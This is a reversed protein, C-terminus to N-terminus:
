RNSILDELLYILRDGIVARSFNDELYERGRLGMELSNEPDAALARIADAIEKANGPATFIGCDAAEVVERIVGDIALVVPRGAAMYDFVKNPYTTKYEELPKLIAICADAGALALAMETKPVSPLFTVNSLNMEKAQAMLASKEKGDGLLVIHINKVDTLLSASELIIQLDNSMGHAGAYLAVFKDKLTNSQRFAAGSDTPDFMSPDAGNPILDVRKAGRSTVPELFGPSNVMVRDASHYLFRELWESLAILIPNKLVGVAIAFQPWLDRVEFLFKAGKIRALAWATVGQFIPPSTGWVLDVHKVGLGIWFSSIMFSFFALVRHIFSKHHADYVAARLITVGEIESNSQHTSNGTIYSVPSAIVTVKHGRTTLLRAFEHHRTGGPENISAFAQHIILIHM